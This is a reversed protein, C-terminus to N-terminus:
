KGDGPKNNNNNNTKLERVVLVWKPTFLIRGYMEYVHTRSNMDTPEDFCM